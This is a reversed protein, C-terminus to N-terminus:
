NDVGLQQTSWTVATSRLSMQFGVCVGMFVTCVSISELFIIDYPVDVAVM